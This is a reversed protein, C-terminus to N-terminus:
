IYIMELDRAGETELRSRTQEGNRLDIVGDDLAAVRHMCIANVKNKITNFIPNDEDNETLIEQFAEKDFEAKSLKKKDEEKQKFKDM